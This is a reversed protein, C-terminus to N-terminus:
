GVNFLIWTQDFRLTQTAASDPGMDEASEALRTAHATLDEVRFYIKRLFRTPYPFLKLASADDFFVDPAILALAFTTYRSM